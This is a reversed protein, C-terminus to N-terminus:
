LMIIFAYIWITLGLINQPFKTKKRKTKDILARM